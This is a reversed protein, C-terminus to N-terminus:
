VCLPHPLFGAILELYVHSRSPRSCALDSGWFDSSLEVHDEVSMSKENHVISAYHHHVSSCSCHHMLTSYMSCKWLFFTQWLVRIMFRSNVKKMVCELATLYIDSKPLLSWSKLLIMFVLSHWNGVIKPGLVKVIIFRSRRHFLSKAFHLAM